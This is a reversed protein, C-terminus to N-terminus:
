TERPSIPASGVNRWVPPHLCQPTPTRARFCQMGYRQWGGVRDRVKSELLCRGREVGEVALALDGVAAQHGASQCWPGLRSALLKNLTHHHKLLYQSEPDRLHFAPGSFSFRRLCTAELVSAKQKTGNQCCSQKRWCLDSELQGWLTLDSM